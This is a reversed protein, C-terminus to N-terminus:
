SSVNKAYHFHLHDYHLDHDNDPDSNNSYYNYYNYYNYNNYYNYYNYNNNYNYQHFHSSWVEALLQGSLIMVIYNDYCIENHSWKIKLAIILQFMELTNLM